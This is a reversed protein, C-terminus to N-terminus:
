LRAPGEETCAYVLRLFFREVTFLKPVFPECQTVLPGSVSGSERERNGQTM